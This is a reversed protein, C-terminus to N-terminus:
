VYVQRMCYISFPFNQIVQLDSYFKYGGKLVCLTTLPEPDSEGSGAIVDQFIDRALCEIRDQIMGQPVLVRSISDEYHKPVCFVETSYGAFDDPINICRTM